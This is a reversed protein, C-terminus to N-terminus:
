YVCLQHRRRIKGTRVSLADPLQHWYHTVCLVRRSAVAGAAAAEPAFARFAHAVFPVRLLLLVGANFFGLLLFLVQTTRAYEKM